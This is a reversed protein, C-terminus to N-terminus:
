VKNIKPEAFNAKLSFGFKAVRSQYTKHLFECFINKAVIDVNLLSVLIDVMISGSRYCIDSVFDPPTGPSNSPPNAM